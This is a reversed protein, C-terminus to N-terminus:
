LIKDGFKTKPSVTRPPIVGRSVRVTQASARDDASSSPPRTRRTARTAASPSSSRLTATHGDALAEGLRIEAKIPLLYSASNTDAFLSTARTSQGVTVRVPVAGFARPGSASRAKLEDALDTPLTVFHWSPPGPHRWVRATLAYRTPAAHQKSV